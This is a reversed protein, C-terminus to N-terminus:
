SQLNCVDYSKRASKTKFVNELGVRLVHLFNGSNLVVQFYFFQISVFPLMSVCVYVDFLFLYVRVRGTSKMSTTAVFNPYPPAMDFSTHVTLGHM